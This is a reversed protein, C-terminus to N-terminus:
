KVIILFGHVYPLFRTFFYLAFYDYFLPSNFVKLCVWIVILETRKEKETHISKWSGPVPAYIEQLRKVIPQHLKGEYYGIGKLSDSLFSRNINLTM